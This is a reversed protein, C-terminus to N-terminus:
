SRRPARIMQSGTESIWRKNTRIESRRAAPTPAEGPLGPGVATSGPQTPVCRRAGTSMGESSPPGSASSPSAAGDGAQVGVLPARCCAVRAVPSTVPVPAEHAPSRMSAPETSPLSQQSGSTFQRPPAQSDNFHSNQPRQPHHDVSSADIDPTGPRSGQHDPQGQLRATRHRHGRQRPHQPRLASGSLRPM